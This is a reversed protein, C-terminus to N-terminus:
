GGAAPDRALRRRLRPFTACGRALRPESQHYRNRTCPIRRVDSPRGQQARKLDSIQWSARPQHIADNYCQSPAAAVLLIKSPSPSSASNREKYGETIKGCLTRPPATDRSSTVEVKTIGPPPTVKFPYVERGRGFWSIAGQLSPRHPNDNVPHHSPSQDGRWSDRGAPAGPPM